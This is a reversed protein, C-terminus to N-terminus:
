TNEKLYADIQAKGPLVGIEYSCEFTEGPKLTRMRGNERASLRGEPFNTGPELAVVYDQQSMMKWENFAPLENPDYAVYAGFDMGHNILAVSVPGKDKPMEHVHCEYVYDKTPKQFVDHMGVGKKSDEGLPWVNLSPAYLKTQESVVPYGFNMHYLMMFPSEVFGESKVTDTVKVSTEGLKMTIQRTLVFNEYYLCSQRMSGSVTICYDEGDWYEDIAYRDAPINGIRDHIGLVTDGDVVPDGVHTLGCTATLGGSFSRLFGLGGNEYYQPAVIGNRCDWSIPKGCFSTPGIDMCKDVLVLFSLGTDNYMHIARAGGQRGGSLTMERAGMVSSMTGVSQILDARAMTKGFLKAM